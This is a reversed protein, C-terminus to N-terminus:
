EHECNIAEYPHLTRISATTESVHELIHDKCFYYAPGYKQWIMYMPIGECKYLVGYTDKGIM